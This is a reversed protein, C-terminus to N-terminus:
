RCAAECELLYLKSIAAAPLRNQPMYKLHVTLVEYYLFNHSLSIDLRTYTQLRQRGPHHQFHTGLRSM